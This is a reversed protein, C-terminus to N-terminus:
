NIDPINVNELERLHVCFSIRLRETVFVIAAAYLLLVIPNDRTDFHLLKSCHVNIRM